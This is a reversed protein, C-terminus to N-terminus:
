KKNLENFKEICKPCGIETLGNLKAHNTALAPTGCLLGGPASIHAKNEWLAGKNGYLSMNSPLDKEQINQM